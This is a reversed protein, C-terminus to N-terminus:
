KFPKPPTWLGLADKLPRQRSSWFNGVVLSLRGDGNLDGVTCTFHDCSRTELPRHRYQGPASQELWLVSDLVLSDRGPFEEVPLYSVAFIDPRGVGRLDAAVARMVGPMSALRHPAFPYAGRNELWHVGHYPKLLFPKDLVDGNTYLVDLDGDADLDVLQM